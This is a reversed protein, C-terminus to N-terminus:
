ELVALLVQRGTVGDRRYSFYDESAATCIGVDTLDSIGEEILAARVAAPLDLARKRSKSVGAVLDGFRDTLLKLELDGFEYYAPHICPGLVAKLDTEGCERLKTVASNVIGALLGRWGAHVVAVSVEGVIAVPACDATMVALVQGGISSVAADAEPRLTPGAPRARVGTVEITEARHVQSLFQWDAADGLGLREGLQQRNRVVTDLDDGIDFAM